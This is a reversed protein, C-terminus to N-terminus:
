KGVIAVIRLPGGSGGDIKMPLAIVHFRREPLNGLNAVNEFIPINHECLAVHSEFKRSQGYDISATDIGIAKISRQEALWRAATPDLGPFHMQTLAEDGTASTGLYQERNSWRQYYGTRLLVIVDALPRENREEWARLDALSVQYDPNDRCAESVDILAAEGLLQSLPIKEATRRDRFFHIPADLHTGGHEPMAFRNASYFYGRETVGYPGRVFQFGETETPWFITDPGFAHTLDILDGAPFSQPANHNAQHAVSAEEDGTNETKPSSTKEEGPQRATRTECGTFGLMGLVGVCSAMVAAARVIKMPFNSPAM